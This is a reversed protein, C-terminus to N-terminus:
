DASRDSSYGDRDHWGDDGHYAGHGKQESGKLHIIEGDGFPHATSAGFESLISALM